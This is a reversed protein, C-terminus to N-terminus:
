EDDGAAEDDALEAAQAAALGNKILQFLERYPRGHRQDPTTNLLDKRASRLLNRLHQADTQPHANMWRTVADDGALLEERWREAHHLALTEKASGLKSAAIAERIPEPDVQRMLKGVYQLQRRRGEFSRTKRYTDLADTLSEPLELAELRAGSLESLQLGLQQLVHSQRKMESKSPRDDEEEAQAENPLESDLDPDPNPALSPPSPPARRM